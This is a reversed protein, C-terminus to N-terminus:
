RAKIAKYIKNGIAGLTLDVDEEEFGTGACEPCDAKISYLYESYDKPAKKKGNCIHCKVLKVCKVKIDGARM